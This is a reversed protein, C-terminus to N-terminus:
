AAVPKTKPATALEIFRAAQDPTLSWRDNKNTHGLESAHTRALRRANQPTLKLERAIDVITRM